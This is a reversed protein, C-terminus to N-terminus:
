TGLDWSASFMLTSAAALTAAPNIGLLNTGASTVFSLVTTAQAVVSGAYQTGGISAIFSGVAQGVQGAPIAIGAVLDVLIANAATGAGVATLAADFRVIGGAQRYSASGTPTQAGNQRLCNTLAMSTRPDFIDSALATIVRSTNVKKVGYRQHVGAAPTTSSGIGTIGVSASDSISTGYFRTGKSSAHLQAWRIFGNFATLSSATSDVYLTGTSGASQLNCDRLTLDRGAVLVDYDTNQEFDMGDLVLESATSQHRLGRPVGQIAGSMRNHFASYLVDVGIDTVNPGINLKYRSNTCEYGVGDRDLILGKAPNILFTRNNSSLGMEFEGSVFYDMKAGATPVDFPYIRFKCGSGLGRGYLGYTSAANGQLLFDMFEIDYSAAASGGSDVTVVPGVGTCKITCGNGWLRLGKTAAGLVALTANTEYVTGPTFELAKGGAKADTIANALATAVQSATDVSPDCYNSVQLKSHQVYFHLTRGVANTETRKVGILADGDAVDATNAFDAFIQVMAGATLGASLARNETDAEEIAAQVTTASITASPAFSVSGAAVATGLTFLLWKGAALDVAFTGSTHASVAIYTNSSQSVLDKVAYSTATLWAGRPTAGYSTLLALVDAALTHVKVRADRIEGDDRQNLEQNVQLANVSSSIDSLEADLATTSVTSRGGINDLEDQSFDETPTYQPAQM